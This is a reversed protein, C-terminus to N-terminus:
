VATPTPARTVYRIVDDITMLVGDRWVRETDDTGLRQMASAIREQLRARDANSMPAGLGDRLGAVAGAIRIAREDHEQRCAVQAMIEFVRLMGRQDGMDAVQVLAEELLGRAEALDGHSVVLEGLDTFITAMGRKHGLSVFIALGERYLARAEEPAGEARALDGLHSLSWAVNIRDGIADFAEKAEEYRARAVDFNRRMQEANGINAIGLAMAQINGVERMARAAVEFLPIAEDVEGQRLKIIGLNNGAMAIAAVDGLTETIALHREFFHKSEAYDGCADALVGGSFLASLRLKPPVDDTMRETVSRIIDAGERAYSRADWYRWLSNCMRLADDVGGHDSLWIIAKRVNDHECELRDLWADDGMGVQPEAEAALTQFFAAHRRALADGDGAEALMEEAFAHVPRLMTFRADGVADVQRRLLSRDALEDLLMAIADADADDACVGAASAATAGGAFVALRRFLRREEPALLDHSWAIASRMTRQRMPVDRAGSTLVDLSDRLKPLLAQPTTTRVRAAALEIALPVGDLRACIEAIAAANEDNIAFAPRTAAARQLFLMVAPSQEVTRVSPQRTEPLPLPDVRFEHEGYLHLLSQSTVLATLQPCDGLIAALEGGAAEALQEFNDLVLLAKRDRLHDRVATSSAASGRLGITQAMRGIFADTDRVEALAVFWIGDTFEDAARKAVELALRTKGIGGPGFLTLLRANQRLLGGIAQVERERGILPTLPVPLRNVHVPSVAIPLQVSDRKSANGTDLAEALDSVTTFREEPTKALARQIAREVGDPLPERANLPPPPATMHQALLSIATSGHFPPKGSLMEYLVCGIAYQDCRGDLPVDGPGAQEPSMYTPTGVVIGTNTIQTTTTAEAVARAIGFDAIMAHGEALLINDPKIDRHIIGQRHAYDLASALERAVRIVDRLPMPAGRALRDRLSEGAVYPMVYYVAGGAEGSDYLPVIHPHTLRAAIRIERLFRDVGLSGAVGGDLVKVAVKRGHRKDSALYVTAMGGRGLEREIAYRDGLSEKVSIPPGSMPRVEGASM